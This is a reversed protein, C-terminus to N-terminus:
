RPPHEPPRDRDALARADSRVALDPLEGPEGIPKDSIEGMKNRAAQILLVSQLVKDGDPEPQTFLFAGLSRPQDLRGGLVLTQGPVLDVSIALDRLTDEKQGDKLTFERQAFPGSDQVPAITRRTEGHHIEPVIRVTM